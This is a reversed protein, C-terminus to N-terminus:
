VKEYKSYDTKRNHSLLTQIEQDSLLEAPFSDDEDLVGIHPTELTSPWLKSTIQSVVAFCQCNKNISAGM